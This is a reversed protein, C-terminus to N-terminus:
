GWAYVATMGALTIADALGEAASEAILCNAISDIDRADLWGWIGDTPRTSAITLGSEPWPASLDVLNLQTRRTGDTEELRIELVMNRENLLIPRSEYHATTTTM